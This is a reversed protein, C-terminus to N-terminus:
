RHAILMVSEVPGDRRIAELEDFVIEFGIERLAARFSEAMADAIVWAVVAHEALVEGIRPVATADVHGSTFTGASVSAAYRETDPHRHFPSTLDVERLARYSGRRAAVELMEPSIDWGDLASFGHARLHEGIVGTGCGLDLVPADLDGHHEALLEAIRSSGVVGLTDFVDNDYTKAWVRYLAVADGPSRLSRARAVLDAAHEAVPLGSKPLSRRHVFSTQATNSYTQGTM